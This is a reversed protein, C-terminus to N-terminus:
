VPIREMAQTEGHSVAYLVLEVRSSVGVKDFIDFLYKKVTNETLGLEAAIDRNSMGDAVLAVVQEQRATLLKSGHSNVVRLGPSQTVAELLYSIQENSAWIQGQHVRQICKCLMRFSTDALHLLGKAGARFANLVAERDSDRLLQIKAIVPHALHFSRLVVPDDTAGILAVDIPEKSVATVIADLNLPCAGVRFEERRGLATALLQRHMHNSDAVLIGIPQSTALSISGM